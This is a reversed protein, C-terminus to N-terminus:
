GRLAADHDGVRRLHQRFRDGVKREAAALMLCFAFDAVTETTVLVGSTSVSVTASRANQRISAAARRSTSPARYARSPFHFVQSGSSRAPWSMYRAVSPSMPNPRM